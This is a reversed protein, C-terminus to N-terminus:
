FTICTVYGLADWASLVYLCVYQVAHLLIVLFTHTCTCLVISLM